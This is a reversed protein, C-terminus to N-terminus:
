EPWLEKIQHPLNNKVKEVEGKSLRDNLLAFVARVLSEPDENPDQEFASEVRAIFDEKHRERHPTGAPHWGDYYFGRVLMPLQAGLHVAEDPKLRDRLAHLTSRLLRYSRQRDDWDVRTSLDNLWENTLHVTEDITRLGMQSM